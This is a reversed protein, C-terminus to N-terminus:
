LNNVVNHDNLYKGHFGDSENLNKLNNVRM